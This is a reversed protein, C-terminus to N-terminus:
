PGVFPRIPGSTLQKELDSHQEADRLLPAVADLDAPQYGAKKLFTRALLDPDPPPSPAAGATARRTEDFKGLEALRTADAAGFVGGSDNGVPMGVPPERDPRRGKLALLAERTSIMKGLEHSLVAALQAESACRNALGESIFISTDDRHFVEPEPSGVALFLPRVPLGANAALLKQGVDNVRRGVAETAPAHSASPMPTALAPAFPNSGVTPLPGDTSNCGAAALVLSASLAWARGTM